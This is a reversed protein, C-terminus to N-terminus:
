PEVRFIRLDDGEFAPHPPLFAPHQGESDVGASGNWMNLPDPAGDGPSLVVVWRVDYAEVVKEIVRFPDFPAAIGPLHTLPYLSAPDSAM